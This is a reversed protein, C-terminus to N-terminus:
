AEPSQPFRVLEPTYPKVKCSNIQEEMLDLADNIRDYPLDDFDYLSYQWWQMDMLRAVTAEPFRLRKVTAPMGAAISYPPIDRTVVSRGAIIAGDGITVGSRIFAGQGIWVDNGITTRKISGQFPMVNNRTRDLDDPKLLEDWGHLGRVHTLRSVTLWDTPHEHAGIIVEPAVACYRGMVVDGIVGGSISTFAGIQVFSHSRITGSVAVPPEFWSQDDAVAVRGPGGIRVGKSQLQQNVELDWCVNIFTM